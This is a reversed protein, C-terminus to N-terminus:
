KRTIIKLSTYTKGELFRILKDFSKSQESNELNENGIKFQDLNLPKPSYIAVFLDFSDEEPNLTSAEFVTNDPILATKEKSIVLNAVLTSVSGDEYVDLLSLYGSADSTALFSFSKGNQLQPSSQNLNLRLHPNSVSSFLDEFSRDDLIQSVNKYTLHWAADKRMLSANISKALNERLEGFLPTKALYSNQTENHELSPLKKIFKQVTSLNQYEIAVYWTDSVKEQKIIRTDSLSAQTSAKQNQIVERSYADNKLNKNQILTSSINTKIQGAIDSKANQIASNLEQAEGYGILSTPTSKYEMASFWMPTDSAQLFTLILLFSVLYKM